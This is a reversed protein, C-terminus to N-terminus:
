KRAPVEFMLSGWFSDWDVEASDTAAIMQVTSIMWVGSYPLNFSTEGNADTLARISVTQQQQHHWARLLANTLPKGDFLLRLRLPAGVPQSLPDNLPLIELRQGTRVAFTDDTKGGARLLTKTNRRFRERGPEASKNGIKRQLILRDLGEDHLYAEFKDAALIIQAPHSDFAILHTGARALTVPIAGVAETTPVLPMLDVLQGNAYHRLAATHSTLFGAQVGEFYEGVAMQLQAQAGVAASFPTASIWFEHTMGVGPVLLLLTALVKKLWNDM